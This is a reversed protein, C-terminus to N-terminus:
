GKWLKRDLTRYGIAEYLHHMQINESPEIDAITRAVRLIKDHARASLGYEHMASKLIQHGDRNLQCHQQIQKYAMDANYRASLGQFRQTQIERAAFVQDRIARSSTGATGSSLDDYDVPPVEIHIDIRDLLPGSIKSMYHEIQIGSCHCQRRPDNRYGCPCPNLAAILIFNAPFVSTCTARSITVSGDELPQRLVELTKRNFEPLEDLFLVGNHALSIEGPKPPSGGGVLGAMSITHHPERFPRVAILPTEKKTYGLVSFIRTTELSENLSLQPLVSAFRKALMTKGTGPSGIMLVNHGGAAAVTMARKASEQGKVDAFDLDYHSLQQFLKSGLSPYPAIERKGSLFDAADALSAIPIVQLADVVAAEPANEEPVLLGKLGNKAAELAVSIVGKAPRTTGDLALEGLIAFDDLRDSALQNSACLLGLSIPLDFTAANKPLDAPALNIVTDSMATTYGTHTIARRVRDISERVAAEPLGVLVTKSLGTPSIDVEVEVPV